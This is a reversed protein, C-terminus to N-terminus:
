DPRRSRALAAAFSAGTSALDWIRHSGASEPDAEKAGKEPGGAPRQGAPDHNTRRTQEGGWGSGTLRVNRHPVFLVNERPPSVNNLSEAFRFENPTLVDSNMTTKVDNQGTTVGSCIRM